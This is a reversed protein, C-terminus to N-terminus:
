GCSVREAANKRLDVHKEGVRTRLEALAEITDDTARLGGANLVAQGPLLLSPRVRDDGFVLVLRDSESESCRVLRDICGDDVTMTEPMLIVHRHHWTESEELIRSLLPLPPSSQVGLRNDPITDDLKAIRVRLDLNAAPFARLAGLCSRLADEDRGTRYVIVLPDVAKSAPFIGDQQWRLRREARWRYLEQIHEIERRKREPDRRESSTESYYYLGLTEDIHLMTETESIRLWFEWDGASEISADLYGYTEHVSRRWMPQPGMHCRDLLTGEHYDLGQVHGARRFDGFTENEGVTVFIDAYVLAVDPRADLVAALRELFDHRHRDDTNALTLYRGRSQRIARSIAAHSSEREKTRIYVINEYQNQFAEVIAGEGEPSGSDVVVIELQDALSQSELDELLGRMFRESKYSSVIASVLYERQQHGDPIRVLEVEADQVGEEFPRWPAPRSGARPIRLWSSALAARADEAWFGGHHKRPLREVKKRIAELDAVNRGEEHVLGALLRHAEGLLISDRCLLELISAARQLEADRSSAALKRALELAYFPFEPDQEVARELPVRKNTMRGQYFNLSALILGTLRGSKTETNRPDSSARNRLALVKVVEDFYARYNFATSFFDWPLVDDLPDVVWSEAPRALTEELLSLAARQEAVKGYHIAARITNFRLVLNDPFTKLALHCLSFIQKLYDQNIEVHGAARVVSVYELLMERTIDIFDKPACGERLTEQFRSFNKRRLEKMEEHGGGSQMWGKWIVSRKQSLIEPLEERRPTRPRAALFTLYRFYEAAVRRMAFERRIRKAGHRAQAEVVPWNEVIRRLCGSLAGRDPSYTFVGEDEGAYLTLVSGEQVAVASGMALAELGRTPMAGSHRIYTFATKSSSVLRLYDDKSAFGDLFYIKLADDELLEHLLRAKDPHYPHTVSGSQFLDIEREGKPVPPLRDPLGFTKPFTTVPVGTLSRAEQWETPDTVLLEDFVQLWPYVAQVHLDFDATHALLPCALDRIDTPILQWEVMEAIVLDPPADREYCEHISAYPRYARGHGSFSMNEVDFQRDARQVALLDHPAIGGDPLFALVRIKERSILQLLRAAHEGEVAALAKRARQKRGGIWLAVGEYFRAENGEFRSLGALAEEVRGVLGLAAYSQWCEGNGALAVGAYNGADFLERLERTSRM